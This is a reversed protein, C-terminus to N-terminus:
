LEFIRVVTRPSNKDKKQFIIRKSKVPGAQYIWTDNSLVPSRFFSPRGYAVLVQEETMGESIIGRRMKEFDGSSSGAALDEANKTSFTRKVFMHITEINKDELEICFEKGAANFRVEDETMKTIVVETGFPLIEGQQMNESTMKLPDTYWLTYSTYVSDYKPVQLVEYPIFERSCSCLLLASLSFVATFFHKM